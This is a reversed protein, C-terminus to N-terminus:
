EIGVVSVMYLITCYVYDDFVLGESILCVDIAQVIVHAHFGVVVRVAVPLLEERGASVAVGDLGERVLGRYWEWNFSCLNLSCGDGSAGRSINLYLRHYPVDTSIM